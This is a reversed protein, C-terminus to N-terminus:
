EQHILATIVSRYRLTDSYLGHRAISADGQYYAALAAQEDGGHIALLHRLLMCGAIVNDEAVALDLPRAPRDARPPLWAPRHVARRGPNGRHLRAAGRRHRPHPAATRDPHPRPRQDPQGRGAREGHHRPPGRDGVPHGGAPRRLQDRRGHHPRRGRHRRARRRRSTLALDHPAGPTSTSHFSPFRVASEPPSRLTPFEGGCTLTTLEAQK